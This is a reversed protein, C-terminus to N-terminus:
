SRAHAIIVVALGLAAVGAIIWPLYTVVNVATGTAGKIIKLAENRLTEVDTLSANGMAVTYLLSEFPTASAVGVVPGDHQLLVDNLWAVSMRDASEDVVIAGLYGASPFPAFPLQMSVILFQDTKFAPIPKGKKPDAFLWYTHGALLPASPSLVAGM